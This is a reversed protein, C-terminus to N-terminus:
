RLAEDVARHVDAFCVQENPRNQEWEFHACYQFAYQALRLAREMNDFRKQLAAQEARARDADMRARIDAPIPPSAKALAEMDREIINQYDQM